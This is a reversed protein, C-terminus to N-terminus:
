LAEKVTLLHQKIEANDPAIQAAQQLLKLAQSTNGSKFLIWGYTDLIAYNNPSLKFAKQATEIARKDQTTFYLWALNNLVVPNNAEKNITAEYLKIAKQYDGSSQLELAQLINPQTSDPLLERWEAIFSSAQTPTSVKKINNYLKNATIDNPQTKWAAKYANIAASIDNNHEALQGRLNNALPNNPQINEIESIINLAEPSRNDLIETEALLSLIKLNTAAYQTGIMLNERAAKYNNNIFAERAKLYYLTAALPSRLPNDKDLPNASEFYNLAVDLQNNRAYYEALIFAPTATEDQYQTIYQKLAALGQEPQKNIEYATVIGKYGAALAPYAVVLKQYHEVAMDLNSNKLAINALGLNASINNPDLQLIKEFRNKALEINNLYLAYRAALNLAKVDDPSTKLLHEIAQTALATKNTDLMAQSYYAVAEVNNPARKISQELHAIGLHKKNKASYYHALILRNQIRDPNIAIAKELAIVAQEQLATNHLTTFGYLTLLQENDPHSQLAKQLIDTAESVKNIKLKALATAEILKPPSNEPDVHDDLLANASEHKGLQFKVLGLYVASPDFSPHQENLGTLLEEAKELEGEQIFEIALSLKNTTDELEPNESVLLKNYILAETTRGQETLVNSLKKLVQARLPKIIDSDPLSMLATTLQKEAFNLDNKLYAILASLYLAEANESNKELIESVVNEAEALQNQSFMINALLIKAAISESNEAIIQDLVTIAEATKNRGALSKVKILQYKIDTPAGDNEIYAALSKEASFYKGHKTYAEALLLHINAPTKETILPELLKIAEKSNDLTLFLNALLIYGVPNEPAKQIINRAEIIAASYQGQKEYALSRNKHSRIVESIDETKDDCGSFVLLSFLGTLLYKITKKITTAM